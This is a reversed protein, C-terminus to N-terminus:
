CYWVRQEKGTKPHVHENIRMIAFDRMAPNKDHIDAKLRLVAEGEAYGSFMKAYRLKNDKINIEQM